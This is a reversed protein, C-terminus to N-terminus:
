TQFRIQSAQGKLDAGLTELETGKTESLKLTLKPFVPQSNEMQSPLSKFSQIAGRRKWTQTKREPRLPPSSMVNTAVM